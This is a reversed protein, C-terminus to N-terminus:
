LWYGERTYIDVDYKENAYESEYALWYFSLRFNAPTAIPYGCCEKVKGRLPLKDGTDDSDALSLAKSTDAEGAKQPLALAVSPPLAAAAPPAVIAVISFCTAFLLLREVPPS